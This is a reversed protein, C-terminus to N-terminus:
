AERTLVHLDYGIRELEGDDLVQGEPLRGRLKLVLAKQEPKQVSPVRNVPVAQGLISGLARAAADHGIASTTGGEALARAQETTIPESLTYRGPTTVSSTNLLLLPSAVFLEEAQDFPLDGEAGYQTRVGSPSLFIRAGGGSSRRAAYAIGEASPGRRLLSELFRGWPLAEVILNLAEVGDCYSEDWPVTDVDASRLSLEWTGPAHPYQGTKLVELLKVPDASYARLAASLGTLSRWRVAVDGCLPIASGEAGFPTPLSLEPANGNEYLSVRHIDVPLAELGHEEAWDRALSEAVTRGESETMMKAAEITLAYAVDLDRPLEAVEPRLIARAASGFIVVVLGPHSSNLYM